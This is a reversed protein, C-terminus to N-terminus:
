PEVRGGGLHKALFAEAAAQFKLRNEPRAFGHGEDAFLLYEVPKGAKRMAEVIQESEAQKVRPDNAGQAILLPIKIQDAKFLPSRSKLFDEEKDVDGVRVAFRKKLPEWYPPISKLLTVLNSPGVIDVACAFVDPTFTAGVLAAYGGYSGGYIAVRKPDAIGEKVTWNVADILDDHMKAAWERNGAHLFKKGFGTSGRYNVQLVAYGRNALWQVTPHYGWVDRAWPGGHVVLVLPLNKATGGPPVTLYSVLELGDRSKITVPKMEALTYKSLEPQSVFLHTLKKTAREYLFFNTPQTDSTYAVVWTQLDRSRGIISPEGAAGKELAKLDEEITPDLAKWKTRERNFAVAEVTHTLPNFIVGSLDAGPEGAIVEEQGGALDRKVLSLTDRKESSTLWLAKGDATFGIVRGDADDPGWKVATQWKSKEDARWRLETGGDPTSAQAARIKFKPDAEWGVIDGPNETELEAAGTALNIRYVDNIRRDRVNMSVLMENPFNRDLATISARVGQFPTLDRVINGNLNVSYIHFNEDGEHDQMYLLTDPAYSWAHQRIGRKKDATVIKADDKGVTQVWVQLVDNKDPALYSLRKGDPSIQPSTKVPNGFLVARPILAGAAQPKAGAAPKAPLEENLIRALLEYGKASLHLGDPMVVERISGDGDLFKEGADLFKVQKGDAIKALRENVTKIKARVPADAKPARPLIGLLVIRSEPLQKRVEAVIAAIGDGIEEPSNGGSLKGHRDAGLNNSGIQLVVVQPKLGALQKGETIRWLVHEVRDGSIGFAAAGLPEILQKWMAQGNQEWGETLSDGLLLISVDGKKARELFAKHQAQAYGDVRAVPKTTKGDEAHLPTLACTALIFAVLQVLRIMM